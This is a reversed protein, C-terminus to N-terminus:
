SLLFSAQETMETPPHSNIKRPMSGWRCKSSREASFPFGRPSLNGVHEEWCNCCGREDEVLHLVGHLVWFVHWHWSHRGSAGQTVGPVAWCGKEKAEAEEDTRHSHSGAKVGEGLKAWLLSFFFFFDFVSTCTPVIGNTESNGGLPRTPWFSSRHAVGCGSSNCKSCPPLPNLATWM